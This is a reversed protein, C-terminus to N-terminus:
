LWLYESGLWEVGCEEEWNGGVLDKQEDLLLIFDM